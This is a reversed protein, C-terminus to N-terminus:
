FHMKEVSIEYNQQGRIRIGLVSVSGCLRQIGIRIWLTESDPDPDVIRIRIWLESGSGCSQNSSNLRIQM